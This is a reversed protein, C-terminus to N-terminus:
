SLPLTGLAHTIEHTVTGIFDMQNAGLNTRAWGWDIGTAFGMSGDVTGANEVPLHLAAAQATYVTWQGLGDTPDTDPLNATLFSCNNSNATTTLANVLQKYTLPAQSPSHAASAVGNSDITEGANEGWGVQITVTIPNIIAKDIIDAGAQLATKFASPAANCSSDYIFNIKM